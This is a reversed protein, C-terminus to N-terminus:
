LRARFLVAAPGCVQRLWLRRYFWVPRVGNGEEMERLWEPKAVTGKIWEM